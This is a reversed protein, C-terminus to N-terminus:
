AAKKTSEKNEQLNLERILDPSLALGLMMLHDKSFFKKIFDKM